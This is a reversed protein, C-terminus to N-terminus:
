RGRRPAPLGRELDRFGLQVDRRMGELTPADPPVVIRRQPVRGKGDNHVKALDAISLRSDPHQGPGGIGTRVGNRLQTVVNGPHGELLANYITDSVRMIGRRKRGTKRDKELTAASLEPWEGGGSSNKRYERRLFDLYRTVWRQRIAKAVPGNGSGTLDATVRRKFQNWPGFDFHARARIM